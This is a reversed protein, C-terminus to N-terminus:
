LVIRELTSGEQNRINASREDHNDLHNRSKNTEPEYTIISRESFDRNYQNHDDNHKRFDFAGLNAGILFDKDSARRQCHRLAHM